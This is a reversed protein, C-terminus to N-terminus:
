KRTHMGTGNLQKMEVGVSMVSFANGDEPNGEAECRWLVICKFIKSKDHGNRICAVFSVKLLLPYISNFVSM